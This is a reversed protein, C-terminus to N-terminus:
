APGEKGAKWMELGKLTSLRLLRFWVMPTGQTGSKWIIGQRLWIVPPVEANAQQRMREDRVGKEKGMIAGSVKLWISFM